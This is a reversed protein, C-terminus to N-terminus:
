NREKKGELWSVRGALDLIITDHRGIKEHHDKLWGGQDKVRQTLMGYVFAAVLVNCAVTAIIEQAIPSM